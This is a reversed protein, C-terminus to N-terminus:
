KGTKITIVSEHLRKNKNIYSKFKVRNIWYYEKM